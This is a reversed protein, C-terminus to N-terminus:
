NIILWTLLIRYSLRILEVQTKTPGLSILIYYLAELIRSAKFFDVTSDISIITLNTARKFKTRDIYQIKIRGM